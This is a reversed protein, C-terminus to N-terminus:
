RKEGKIKKYPPSEEIKKIISDAIVSHGYDSFHRDQCEPHQTHITLDGQHDTLQEFSLYEKGNYIIPIFNDPFEEKLIKGIEDYWSLALWENPPWGDIKTLTEIEQKIRHIQHYCLDDVNDVSHVDETNRGPNTFQFIHYDVHGFNLYNHLQQLKTWMGSNDGGNNVSTNFYNVDFYKSVLHPYSNQIRFQEAGFPLQEQSIREGTFDDMDEWTLDTNEVLWYYQLGQGYTYSCGYFVFM